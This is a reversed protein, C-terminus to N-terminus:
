ASPVEANYDAGVSSAVFGVDDNMSPKRRLIEPGGFIDRVQFLGLFTTHLLLSCNSSLPTFLNSYHSSLPTFLISYHSSPPTPVILSKCHAIWRRRLHSDDRAIIGAQAVAESSHGGRIGLLPLWVLTRRPYTLKIYWMSHISLTHSLTWRSTRTPKRSDRDVWLNWSLTWLWMWVRAWCRSVVFSNSFRPTLLTPLIVFTTHSLCALPSGQDEFLGHM